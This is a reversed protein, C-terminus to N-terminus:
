KKNGGTKKNLEQFTWNLMHDTLCRKKLENSACSITVKEISDYEGYEIQFCNRLTKTTEIFDKLNVKHGFYDSGHISYNKSILLGREKAYLQKLSDPFYAPTSNLSLGNIFVFNGSIPLEGENGASMSYYQSKYRELEGDYKKLFLFLKQGTKYNTWRWACPWDQFKLVKIAKEKGTLNGEVKLTYTLSDIATIEGYVIKDAGLIMEYLRMPDYDAKVAFSTLLLFVIILRPKMKFQHCRKAIRQTGFPM